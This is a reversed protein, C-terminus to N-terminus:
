YQVNQKISWKVVEEDNSQIYAVTKMVKGYRYGSEIRPIPTTVWIKHPHEPYIDDNNESYEFLHDFEKERFMGIISGDGVNKYVTSCAFAM